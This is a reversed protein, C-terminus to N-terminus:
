FLNFVFGISHLWISKTANILVRAQKSINKIQRMFSDNMFQVEASTLTKNAPTKDSKKLNVSITSYITRYLVRKFVMLFPEAVIVIGLKNAHM